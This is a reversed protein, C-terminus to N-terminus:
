YNIPMILLLNEFQNDIAQFVPQRKESIYFAGNPATFMKNIRVQIPEGEENYGFLDYCERGDPLKLEKKKTAIQGKFNTFFNELAKLENWKPKRSRDNLKDIVWQCLDGDCSRFIVHGESICTYDGDSYFYLKKEKRMARIVNNLDGKKM